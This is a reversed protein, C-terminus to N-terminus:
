DEQFVFPNDTGNNALLNFQKKVVQYCECAVTELGERNLIQIHGRNYHILGAERLVLAACTVGARRVGMMTAIFGQTLPLEDSQVADSSTLLWRALREEIRHQANCAATQAVGIFLAHTYRLLRSQLVGGRGFADRIVNAKIKIATGPIQVVSVLPTSAAGLFIPLGAMGERGAVGAEITSGDSLQTVLSILADNPFYVNEIPEDSGIIVTGHPLHVHEFHPSLKEYEDPTLAALIQNKIQHYPPEQASM